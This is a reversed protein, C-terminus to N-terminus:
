LKVSDLWLCKMRNREADLDKLSERVEEVEKKTLNLDIDINRMQTHKEELLGEYMTVQQTIETIELQRDYNRKIELCSSEAERLAREIEVINESTGIVHRQLKQIKQIKEFKEPHQLELTKWRHINFPRGLEEKLAISKNVEIQVESELSRCKIVLEDFIIAEQELASKQNGLRKLKEMAKSIVNMQEKYENASHQLMSQQIKIKEQIKELDENKRLLINDISDRYGIITGYDKVFKDCESDVLSISQNLQIIEKNHMDLEKDLDEIHRRAGEINSCLRNKDDIAHHHNFHETVLENEINTIDIKIQNIQRNIVNYEKKLKEIEEHKLLLVKSRVNCENKLTECVQQKQKLIIESNELENQITRIKAEEEALQVLITEVRETATKTEVLHKQNRKQLDQIENQHERASNQLMGLDHQLTKLNNENSYILDIMTNSNKESLDRKRELIIMDRLLSEKQRRQSEHARKKMNMDVHIIQNIKIKSEDKENELHVREKEAEIIKQSLTDKKKILINKETVLVQIQDKMNIVQGLKETNQEETQKTNEQQKLLEKSLKDKSRTIEKLKKNIRDIANKSNTIQKDINQATMEKLRSEKKFGSLQEREQSVHLSIMESKNVFDHLHRQTDMVSKNAIDISEEIIKLENMTANFSKENDQIKTEMVTIQDKAELIDSKTNNISKTKEEIQKILKDREQMQEDKWGPGAKLNCEFSNIEEKM